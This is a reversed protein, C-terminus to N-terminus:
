APMPRECGRFCSLRPDRRRFPVRRVDEEPHERESDDRRRLDHSKDRRDRDRAYRVRREGGTRGLHLRATTAGVGSKRKAPEPVGSAGRAVCCVGCRADRWEDGRRRWQHHGRWDGDELAIQRDCARHLARVLGAHVSRSLDYSWVVKGDDGNLCVVAGAPEKEDGETDLTLNGTGMGFFVQNGLALPAGFVRYSAPTRWLPQATTAEICLMAYTGYGSGAYLRNGVVTPPTDIHLKQETGQFHWLKAGTKADAAFLGDDGASFAVKGDFVRPTGETHSGTEFPKEWAPKGTAIDLCYLKCGSDTHLGEGFYVRGEAVTPTCFVPKLDDGANYMWVRAGTARDLCYVAGYAGFAAQKSAGFYLRDGAVTVSSMVQDAGDVPFTKVSRLKPGFVDEANGAITGTTTTTGRPMIALLGCLFLVGLAVLEGSLSLRVKALPGDVRRTVMRYITYLTAVFLGVAIFTFERMPLELATRWPGFFRASAALLATTATLGLLAYLERHTPTETISPEADAMRRYRRGAWNMGIATVVLLGVTFGQLSFIWANPLYKQTFFFVLALSSNISAIVLFARWRKMGVAM